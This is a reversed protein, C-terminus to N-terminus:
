VDCVIAIQHERFRCLVGTLANTLDPGTLLPDNLSTGEFKASCDFVVRIKEPKRPHYVGHHPIYWANCEKPTATAEEADGDRFVHDMFRVYDERYKPSRELKRKLHKLRITALQKNNPLQPRERFPLPM